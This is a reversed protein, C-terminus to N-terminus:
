AHPLSVTSGYSQAIANSFRTRSSNIASSVL